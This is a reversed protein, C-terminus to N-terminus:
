ITMKVQRDNWGVKGDRKFVPVPSRYTVLEGRAIRLLEAGSLRVGKHAKKVVWAYRGDPMKVRETENGKKDKRPEYSYLCYLKKGCVAMCDAEAEVKWAGLETSSIPLQCRGYGIISDTDVYVPHEVDALGRLLVSRAAGTISAGTAVNLFYAARPRSRWIIYQDNGESYSWKRGTGNCFMCRDTSAGDNLRICLICRDKCVREAYCHPCPDNLSVDASTLEYDYFNDPNQSFKGYASNLTFKYLLDRADDGASKANAREDFFHTVFTDFTSLERFNYTTLIEGEFTGTDIAALYEHITTHFIGEARKFDLGTKTRTAFAGRNIGKVTLFCTDDGIVASEIMDTSIPHLFRKMVDPYMSNVDWVKFRQYILGSEFCENRGGHYFDRRLGIDYAADGSEFSHFQKLQKMSSGGITLRNGFEAHFTTVLDWLYVCDGRLYDIIEIKHRDRVDREMKSYDIEDKRYAALPFPMIAFSDRFEQGAIVCSVIRNGIIRIAGKIHTMFYFADFKGGNHWYVIMPEMAYLMTVTRDILRIPDEDWITIYKQGDYFGMVFPEPKRGVMFPDTELDLVALKM